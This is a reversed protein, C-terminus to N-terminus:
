CIKCFGCWCSDVECNSKYIYQGSDYKIKMNNFRTCNIKKAYTLNNFEKLAHTYIYKFLLHINHNDKASTLIHLADIEKAFKSVENETVKNYGKSIDTKNGVLIFEIKKHGPKISNHLQIVSNFSHRNNVDFVLLIYSANKYYTEVISKYRKDGATDWICLKISYDDAGYKINIDKTGFDVGITSISDLFFKDQTYKFLISSKGVESDGILICKISINFKVM